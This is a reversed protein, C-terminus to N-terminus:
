KTEVTNEEVKSHDVVIEWLDRDISDLVIQMELDFSRGRITHESPSHFEVSQSAAGGIITLDPLKKELFVIM